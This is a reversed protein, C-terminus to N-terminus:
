ILTVWDKRNINATCVDCKRAQCAFIRSPRLVELIGLHNFLYLLLYLYNASEQVDELFM